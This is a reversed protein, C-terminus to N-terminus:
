CRRAIEAALKDINDNFKAADDLPFAFNCVYLHSGLVAKVSGKWNGPDLCSPEQVPLFFPLQQASSFPSLGFDRFVSWQSPSCAM